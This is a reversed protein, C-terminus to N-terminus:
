HSECSEDYRKRRSKYLQVHQELSSIRLLRQSDNAAVSPRFIDNYESMKLARVGQRFRMLIQNRNMNNLLSVQAGKRVKEATALEMMIEANRVVHLGCSVGDM